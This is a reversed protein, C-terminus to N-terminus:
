FLSSIVKTKVSQPKIPATRSDALQGSGADMKSYWSLGDRDIWKLADTKTEFGVIYHVKGGPRRALVRWGLGSKLPVPEFRIKTNAGDMGSIFVIRM